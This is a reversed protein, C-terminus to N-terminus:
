DVPVRGSGIHSGTSANLTHSIDKYKFINQYGVFQPLILFHLWFIMKQRSLKNNLRDLYNRSVLLLGILQKYTRNWLM